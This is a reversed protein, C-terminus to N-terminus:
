VTIEPLVAQLQNNYSIIEGPDGIWYRKFSVGFLKM